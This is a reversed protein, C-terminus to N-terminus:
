EDEGGDDNVETLDVFQHITVPNGREKRLTITIEMHKYQLIKLGQLFSPWTIRDTALGRTKNGKWSSKQKESLNSNIRDYWLSLYRDWVSCNMKTDYLLLRWLRSLM